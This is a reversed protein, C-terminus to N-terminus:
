GIGVVYGSADGTTQDCCHSSRNM